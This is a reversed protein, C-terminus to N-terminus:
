YMEIRNQNLPEFSSNAPIHRKIWMASESSAVLLTASPMNSYEFLATAGDSFVSPVDTENSLLEPTGDANIPFISLTGVLGEYAMNLALLGDSGSIERLYILRWLVLGDIAQQETVDPFLQTVLNSILIDDQQDVGPLSAAVVDITIGIEADVGGILYRGDASVDVDQNGSTDETAGNETWRLSTTASIFKLTGLGTPNRYGDDFTVGTINSSQFIGTQSKLRTNSRAGGLSLAPDTNSVGGSLYFEVQALAM